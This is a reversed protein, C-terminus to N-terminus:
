PSGFSRKAEHFIFEMRGELQFKVYEEFIYTPTISMQSAWFWMGSLGDSKLAASTFLEM